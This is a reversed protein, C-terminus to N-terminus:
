DTIDVLFSHGHHSFLHWPILRIHPNEALWGATAKQVGKRPDARFHFWDDFLLITGQRVLDTLFNLVPVTSEYLDCDIFAISVVELQLRDKLEANLTRDFWGPVIRVRDMDVGSARLNQEFQPQSCSFQGQWFEGGQDSGVLEPLGEFSDFALFRMWPMLSAARHYVHSFSRGQYVGFEAYDGSLRGPPRPTGTPLDLIGERRTGIHINMIAMDLVRDRPGLTDIPKQRSRCEQARPPSGLVKWLVKRTPRVIM